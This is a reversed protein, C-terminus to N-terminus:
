NPRLRISDACMEDATKSSVLPLMLVRHMESMNSTANETPQLLFVLSALWFPLAACDDPFGSWGELAVPLVELVAPCDLGAVFSVPV